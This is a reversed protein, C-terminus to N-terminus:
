LAEMTGEMYGKRYAEKIEGETWKWVNSLTDHMWIFDKRESQWSSLNIREFFEGRIEEIEKENMTKREKYDTKM